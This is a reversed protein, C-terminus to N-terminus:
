IFCSSNASIRISLLAMVIPQKQMRLGICYLYLVFAVASTYAQFVCFDTFLSLLSFSNGKAHFVRNGSEAFEEASHDHGIDPCKDCPTKDSGQENFFAPEGIRLQRGDLREHEGEQQRHQNCRLAALHDAAVATADHARDCDHATNGADAAGVALRHQHTGHDHARKGAPDDLFEILEHVAVHRGAKFHQDVVERDADEAHDHGDNTVIRDARDHATDQGDQGCADGEQDVVAQQRQNRNEELRCLNQEEVVRDVVANECRDACLLDRFRTFGDHIHQLGVGAGAEAHQQGVPEKGFVAGCLIGCGARDNDVQEATDM